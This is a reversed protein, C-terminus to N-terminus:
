NVDTGNKSAVHSHCGNETFMSSFYVFLKGCRNCTSFVFPLKEFLREISQRDPLHQFANELVIFPKNIIQQSERRNIKWLEYVKRRKLVHFDILYFVVNTVYIIRLVTRTNGGISIFRNESSEAM